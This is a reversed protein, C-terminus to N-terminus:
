AVAENGPLIIPIGPLSGVELGHYFVIMRMAGGKAWLPYM